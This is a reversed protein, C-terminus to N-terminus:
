LFWGDVGEVVGDGRFVPDCNVGCCVIFVRVFSMGEREDISRYTCVCPFLDIEWRSVDSGDGDLTVPSFEGDEVDVVVARAVFGDVLQFSKVSCVWFYYVRCLYTRRVSEPYSVEVAM